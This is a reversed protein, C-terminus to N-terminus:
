GTRGTSTTSTFNRRPKSILGMSIPSSIPAAEAKEKAHEKSQRRLDDILVKRHVKEQIYLPPASVILDSWDAVDKGRWVLQPDLDRNRREYALRLASKDEERM